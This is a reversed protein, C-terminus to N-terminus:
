QRDVYLKPDIWSLVDISSSPLLNDILVVLNDDVLSAAPVLLGEVGQQLAAHALQQTISPAHPRSWDQDETLDAFTLGTRSVDRLDLVRALNIQLRTLRRGATAQAGGSGLYRIAEGLCAGTTLGLYLARWVPGGSAQARARHYRGSVIESGQASTADRRASHWRWAEGAWGDIPLNAIAQQAEWGPIPAL